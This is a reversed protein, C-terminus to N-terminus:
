CHLTAHQAMWQELNPALDQHIPDEKEPLTRISQNLLSLAKERQSAGLASLWLDKVPLGELTALRYLVKTYIAAGHKGQTWYDLATAVLQYVEPGEEIHLPNQTLIKALRTAWLFSKYHMALAARRTELVYEEVFLTQGTRASKLLLSATDFLDPTTGKGPKSTKRHFCTLLGSDASLVQLRWCRESLTKNLVIGTTSRHM